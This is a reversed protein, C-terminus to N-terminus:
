APQGGHLASLIQPLNSALFQSAQSPDVGFKRALSAVVDSGLAQEIQNADVPM